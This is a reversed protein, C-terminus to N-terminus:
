EGVSGTVLFAVLFSPVFPMGYKVWVKKVKLKILKKIQKRSVGLDKPGCIRKGKVVIDKAIWDGETLQKIPILQIMASFEVAKIIIFLYMMVILFFIMVLSADVLHQTTYQQIPTNKKQLYVVIHDKEREFDCLRCEDIFTAGHRQAVQNLWQDFPKRMFNLMNFSSGYSRGNPLVLKVKKLQIACLRDNPIKEGIIREFYPFQIGSCPKDRPTKDKEVLLTRLGGQAAYKAAVSGAIGGGVVIVDFSNM